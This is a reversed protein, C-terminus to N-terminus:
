FAGDPEGDVVFVSRGGCEAMHGTFQELGNVICKAPREVPLDLLLLDGPALKTLDELRLTAGDLAIRVDTECPEVLAFMRAQDEPSSEVRRSVWQQDFKQRMIKIALSPVAINLPGTHEGLRIEMGVAVVAESPALANLFQPEKDISQINFDVTAVSKWAERLDQVIVRLLMEVLRQEIDTIERTLLQPEEGSGGLLLELIPFFLAPGLELVGAGEFPRLGLSAVITPSPLGSVFEQFPIQVFSTLSVSVYTRLYASLSAALSRAFNEHLTRIARLQAAPIRNPRLFDYRAALPQGAAVPLFGADIEDQSLFRRPSQTAM